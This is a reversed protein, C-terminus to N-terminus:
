VGNVLAFEGWQERAAADYARAAEIESKFSGLHRRTIPNVSGSGIRAEWCNKSKSWSVGKYLSSYKSAKLRNAGNQVKTCIRINFRQNDLGNHNVHDVQMGHPVDLIARHMYVSVNKDQRHETRRAYWVGNHDQRAAWHYASLLPYDADDILAVKGRTLEIERM